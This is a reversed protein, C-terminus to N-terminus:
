PSICDSCELPILCAIPGYPRKDVSAADSVGFIRQCKFRSSNNGSYLILEYMSDNGRDIILANFATIWRHDVMLNAVFSMKPQLAPTHGWRKWETSRCNPIPPKTLFLLHRLDLECRQSRNGAVMLSISILTPLLLTSRTPSLVGNKKWFISFNPM